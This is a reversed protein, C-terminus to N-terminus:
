KEPAHYHQDTIHEVPNSDSDAPTTKAPPIATSPAAHAPNNRAAHQATQGTVSTKSVVSPSVPVTQQQMPATVPVNVAPAPSPVPNSSPPIIYIAAIALLIGGGLLLLKGSLSHLVGKTGVSLALKATLRKNPLTAFEPMSKADRELAHEIAHDIFDHTM